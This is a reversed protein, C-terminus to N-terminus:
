QITIKFDSITFEYTNTAGVTWGFRVHRFAEWLDEGEITSPYTRTESLVTSGDYAQTLDRFDDSADPSPSVIWVKSELIQSDDQSRTMEIRCGFVNSDSNNKGTLWNSDSESYTTNSNYGVDDTDGAGHKNDDTLSSDTGWFIVALHEDKPDDKDDDDDKKNADQKTDFEVASKPFSIYNNNDGTAFNSEGSYGMNADSGSGCPNDNNESTIVAFTFGGDDGGQQNFEFTFYARLTSNFTCVGDPCSGNAEGSYWLCGGYDKDSSGVAVSVTGTDEDVTIVSDTTQQILGGFDGIDDEFSIVSGESVTPDEDDTSNSDATLSLLYDKTVFDVIDDFGTEDYYKITIHSANYDNEGAHNEGPSVVWFAVDGPDEDDPLTVSLGTGNYYNYKLDSKFRGVRHGIMTTFNGHDPLTGNHSVYWGLVEERATRVIRKSEIMLDKKTGSIIRPLVTAIIFGTVVLLVAMEVLTFGNRWSDSFNKIHKSCSCSIRM